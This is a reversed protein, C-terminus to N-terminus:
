KQNDSPLDITVRNYTNYASALLLISSVVVKIKGDTKGDWLRQVFAGTALSGLVRAAFLAIELVAPVFVVFPPRDGNLQWSRNFKFLLPGDSILLSLYYISVWQNGIHKFLSHELLPFFPKGLVAGFQLQKAASISLLDSPSQCKSRSFTEVAIGASSHVGYFRVV